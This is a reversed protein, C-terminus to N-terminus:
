RALAMGGLQTVEASATVVVASADARRSSACVITVPVAGTAVVVASASTALSTGADRVTRVETTLRARRGDRPLRIPRDATILLLSSPMTSLTSPM